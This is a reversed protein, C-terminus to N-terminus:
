KRATNSDTNYMHILLREQSVAAIRTIYSNITGVRIM